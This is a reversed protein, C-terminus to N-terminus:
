FKNTFPLQVHFAVWVGPSDIRSDFRFSCSPSGRGASTLEQKSKLNAASREEFREALELLVLLDHLSIDSHGFDFSEFEQM